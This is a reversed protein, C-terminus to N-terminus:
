HTAPVTDQDAGSRNAQSGFHSIAREHVPTYHAHKYLHSYMHIQMSYGHRSVCACMYLSMHMSYPFAGM